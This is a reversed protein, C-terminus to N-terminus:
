QDTGEKMEDLFFDEDAVRSEKSVNRLHTTNRDVRRKKGDRKIQSM